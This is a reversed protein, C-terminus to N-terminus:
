VEVSTKASHLAENSEGQGNMAIWVIPRANSALSSIGSVRTRFPNLAPSRRSKEMVALQFCHLKRPSSTVWCEMHDRGLTPACCTRASFGHLDAIRPPIRFTPDKLTDGRRSGPTGM